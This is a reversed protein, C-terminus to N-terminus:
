FLKLICIRLRTLLHSWFYNGCHRLSYWITNNSNCLRANVWLSFAPNTVLIYKKAPNNLMCVPYTVFIYKPFLRFLDMHWSFTFIWRSSKQVLAIWFVAQVFIRLNASLHTCKLRRSKILIQLKNLIKHKFDLRRKLYPKKLIGTILM